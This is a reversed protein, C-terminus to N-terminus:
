KNLVKEVRWDGPVKKALMDLLKKKDSVSLSTEVFYKGNKSTRPARFQHAVALSTTIEPTLPEIREFGMEELAEMLVDSQVTHAIRKGRPTTVILFNKPSKKAALHLPLMSKIRELEREITQISHLIQDFPKQTKM